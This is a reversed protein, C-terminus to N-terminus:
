EAMAKMEAGADSAFFTMLHDADRFLYASTLISWAPIQNAVDQPAINGMELNGRQLAVLETGQGFLTGGYHLELEYDDAVAEALRQMMGARIDQESVVASFRLTPKDQAALPGALTSAVFM